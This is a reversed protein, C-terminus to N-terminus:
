AVAPLEGGMKPRQITSCYLSDKIFCVPIAISRARPNVRPAHPPPPVALVEPLTFPFQVAVSVLGSPVGAKAKVVESLWFLPLEVTFTVVRLKVVAVGHKSECVLSVPENMSLPFKLPFTV